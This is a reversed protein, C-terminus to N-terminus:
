IIECDEKCDWLRVGDNEFYANIGLVRLVDTVAKMKADLQIIRLSENTSDFTGKAINESCYKKQEYMVGLDDKIRGIKYKDLIITM